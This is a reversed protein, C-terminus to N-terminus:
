GANHLDWLRTELTMNSFTHQSTLEVSDPVGKEGERKEDNSDNEQHFVSLLQISKLTIIM